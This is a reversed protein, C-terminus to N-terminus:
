FKFEKRELYFRTLADVAVNVDEIHADKKISNIIKEKVDLDLLHQHLHLSMFWAAGIMEKTSHLVCSSSLASDSLLAFILQIFSSPLQDQQPLLSNFKVFKQHSHLFPDVIEMDFYLTRLIYEEYYIITKRWKDYEQKDIPLSADRNNEISEFARILSKM